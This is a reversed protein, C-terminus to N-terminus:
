RCLPSTQGGGARRRHPLAGRRRPRTAALERVPQLVGTENNALMISVLRTRPTLAAALSPQLNSADPPPQLPLVTIDVDGRKGLRRRLACSPTTSSRRPSSTHPSEFARVRRSVGFLALNNSETGGSTFIIESPRCALLSAVQDRAHEVAARARQGPQHVSNPNAFIETWFPSMAAVVEPLLPTTANADM